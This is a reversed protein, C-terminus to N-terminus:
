CGEPVTPQFEVATCSILFGDQIVFSMSHIANMLAEIFAAPHLLRWSM